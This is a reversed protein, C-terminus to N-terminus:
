QFPFPVAVTDTEVINSLNLARDRIQIQYKVPYLKYSKGYFYVQSFDLTGELAGKQNKGFLRPFYLKSNDGSALEVYRGNELRLTKLQYNGWSEKAFVTRRIRASDLQTDEGLDGTGDQFRVTIVISDRRATRRDASAPLNKFPSLLPQSIEPVDSYNPESYCGTLMLALLVPM